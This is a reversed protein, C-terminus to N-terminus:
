RIGYEGTWAQGPGYSLPKGPCGRLSALLNHRNQMLGVGATTPSSPEGVIARTSPSAVGDRYDDTESLGANRRGERLAAPTRHLLSSLCAGLQTSNPVVMQQFGGSSIHVQIPM